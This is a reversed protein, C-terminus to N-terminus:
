ESRKTLSVTATRAVHGDPTSARLDGMVEAATHSLAVTGSFAPPVASKPVLRAHLSTEEAEGRIEQEGLAGKATGTVSGDDACTLEITGPGTFAKTDDAKWEPIGGRNTPLDIRNAVAKYTGTWTGACWSKASASPLPLAASPASASPATGSARARAEAESREKRSCGSVVSVGSAVVVLLAASCRAARRESPARFPRM